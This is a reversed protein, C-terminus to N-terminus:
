IKYRSGTDALTNGAAQLPTLSRINFKYFVKGPLNGAAVRSLEGFDQQLPNKL